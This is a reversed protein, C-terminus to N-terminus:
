APSTLRQTQTQDPEPTGLSGRPQATSQTPAYLSTITAGFEPTTSTDLPVDFFVSLQLRSQYPLGEKHEGVKEMVTVQMRAFLEPYLDKVTRVAEPTVQRNGLDELLTMPNEAARVIRAWKATEYTSPTMEARSLRLGKIPPRYPSANYLYQLRAMLANQLKEGVAPNQLSVPLTAVQVARQTTPSTVAAAIEKMRARATHKDTEQGFRTAGLVSAATVAKATAPKALAAIAKAAFSGVTGNVMGAGLVAGEAAGRGGDLAYGVASGAALGVIQRLGGRVTSALFGSGRAGSPIAARGGATVGAKFARKVWSSRAAVAEPAQSQAVAWAKLTNKALPDMAALQEPALGVAASLEADPIALYAQDLGEKALKATIAEEGLDLAVGFRQGIKDDLAKASTAYLHLAEGVKGISKQNVNFIQGLDLKEGLHRQLTGRAKNLLSAEPSSVSSAARQVASQYLREAEGLAVEQKSVRALWDDHAKVSSSRAGSKPGASSIRDYDIQARELRARASLVANDTLHGGAEAVARADAALLEGVKADAAELSVAMNDVPTSASLVKRASAGAGGIAAGTVGGLVAGLTMNSALADLTFPDDNLAAQSITSGAGYLAGESAAQIAGRLATKAVGEGGVRGALGAGARTAWATPTLRAASGALGTGGSLIAPLLAGGVEGAISAVENRAQLQQLGFMEDDDLVGSLALDSLGLTAGRAGGALLALANNGFGEGYQQELQAERAVAAVDTADATSVNTDGGLIDLAAQGGASITPGGEGLQVPIDGDPVFRGTQVYAAAQADPVEVPRGTQKDLLRAL